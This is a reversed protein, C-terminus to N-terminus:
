QSNKEVPRGQHYATRSMLEGQANWTLELGHPVGKGWDLFRKIRGNEHWEVDIGDPVERGSADRYVQLLRRPAQSPYTELRTGPPHSGPAPGTIDRPMQELAKQAATNNPNLRLAERLSAQTMRLRDRKAMALGYYQFALDDYPTQQCVLLLHAAAEELQQFPGDELLITGLIYHLEIATPAQEIAQYLLQLARDLQGQKQFNRVLVIHIDVTSQRDDGVLALAQRALREAEETKGAWLLVRAVTVLARGQERQDISGELKEAVAAVAQEGWGSGPEVLGQGAMTEILGVALIKNGEITPHVHDLFYEQGLIAHGYSEQMRQRLLEIFDVLGAGEERAVEAVIGPMPTLARLPCVDEDRAAQLVEEAEEFRGLTFLTQGRRYLLEAQRPDFALAQDLNGLAGAWDQRGMAERAAALLQESRHQALADLGASLESKFPACDKLNSAPTVFIVQAGVARALDVARELSVRYHELINDRLADDRTYRNLGAARDLIANVEGRLQSREQDEEQPQIGLAQLAGSMATWSRTRALLSVTTRLAAPMDRLQGYTREELFENHGTYIIFLDPQYNVLEEMLHAVRYSAYSIGGANIVEWHRSGDATPLLERLWGSFSLPDAYPHGYTTSGGLTFIRVTGPAKVRPFSQINFYNTKNAATIMQQGDPSPLYLPVHDAFGVFPDDTKVAPRIGFLALGGELLLFFILIAALPLLIAQWLPIRRPSQEPSPFRGSQSPKKENFRSRKTM